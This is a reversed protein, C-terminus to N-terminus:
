PCWKHDIEQIAEQNKELFNLLDNVGACANRAIDRWKM